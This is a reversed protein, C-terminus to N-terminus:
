RSGGQPKTTAFVLKHHPSFNKRIKKRIELDNLKQTAVSLKAIMTM